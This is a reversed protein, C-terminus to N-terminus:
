RSIGLLHERLSSDKSRPDLWIAFFAEAFEPDSIEATRSKGDYFRCGRHPIFIGVLQDGDNVDPFARSMAQEWQELRDASFRQKFLRKIEDISVRAIREGTIHRHYTLQLAFPQQPNFPQHESWLVASYISLGFWSLEGQGVAKAQPLEEHWDSALVPAACLALLLAALFIRPSTFCFSCSM